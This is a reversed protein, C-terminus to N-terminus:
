FPRVRRLELLRRTLPDHELPRESRDVLDREAVPVPEADVEDDVRVPTALHYGAILQWLAEATLRRVQDPRLVAGPEDGGLDIEVRGQDTATARQDVLQEGRRAELDPLDVALDRQLGIGVLQVRHRLARGASIP